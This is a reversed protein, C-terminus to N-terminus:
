AWIYSTPVMKKLKGKPKCRIDKTDEGEIKDYDDSCLHYM